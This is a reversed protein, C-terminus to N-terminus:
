PILLDMRCQCGAVEGVDLAGTDGPWMAGNSFREDFGVTEGSMAAHTDRPNGSMVVWTKMIDSRGSQRVAEGAAWSTMSTAIMEALVCARFSRSYEFVGKPTSKEDDEPVDGSLSALLERLTSQNIAHARAEAVARVYAATRPASWQSADEALEAMVEAGYRAVMDYIISNLDSSLERDWREADYWDPEGAKAGLRSLVSAEQRSFFRKLATELRQTEMEDTEIEIRSFAAYLDPLSAGPPATMMGTTGDGSPLRGGFDQGTLAKMSTTYEGDNAAYSDATTDRPSALGGTVVNLPVILEDGGDIAPRNVTARAENRTIWPAGVSSQLMQVQELFSGNLKEALDFEIYTKPDAGLRQVLYRTLRQEIMRIDPGLVDTYLARANEKVSAYTQGNDSMMSPKMHYAICVSEFSLTNAQEWQADQMNMSPSAKITMGDELVPTSGAGHGRKSYADQWADRFREMDEDDWGEAELPRSIYAPIRSGREWMQSRYSWSQLQEKLVQKLSKVATSGYRPDTPNYGHWLICDDLDIPIEQGTEPNSIIVRSPAFLDGGDYGLIWTPPIPRIAYGSDSSKDESVVWLATDYLKLDSMLNYILEYTTMTSNPHRLLTAVRSTTDRVRDTDSERVYVKLPLQAVNSALFSVVARLQPQEEYLTAVDMDDVHASIGADYVYTRYPPVLLRSIRSLISM